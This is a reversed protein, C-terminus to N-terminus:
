LLAEVDPGLARLRAEAAADGALLRFDEFEFGPAVTCTVLAYAGAPRAAQWTGAPVVVSPTADRARPGLRRRSPAAEHPALLFLDLPEGDVFTWQEDSRLGHWRSRDGAGLLFYIATVASRAGRGDAPAVKQPSRYWERFFGGEPHPALELAEAVSAASARSDAGVVRALTAIQGAHRVTHEAGHALLGLVTSPLKARGVTRPEALAREPTARLQALAARLTAELAARLGAVAPRKEEISGEVAFAEMQSPTLAEGRAYTCLRDLSGALHTLHFAIPASRGPRAWFADPPLTALLPPLEELVQM